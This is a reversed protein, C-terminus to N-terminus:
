EPLAFNFDSPTIISQKSRNNLIGDYTMRYQLEGNNRMNREM